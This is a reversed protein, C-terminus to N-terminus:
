RVKWHAFLDVEDDVTFAANSFTEEGRVEDL